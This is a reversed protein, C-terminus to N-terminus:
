GVFLYDNLYLLCKDVQSFFDMKVSGTLMVVFIVSHFPAAKVLCRTWLKSETVCLQRSGINVWYQM